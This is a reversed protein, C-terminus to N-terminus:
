GELKLVSDSLILMGSLYILVFLLFQMFIHPIKSKFITKLVQFAM